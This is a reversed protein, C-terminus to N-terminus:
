VHQLWSELRQIIEPTYVLVLVPISTQLKESFHEAQKESPPYFQGQLSGM